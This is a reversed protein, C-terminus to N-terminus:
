HSATSDPAHRCRHLYRTLLRERRRTSDHIRQQLRVQGAQRLVFQESRHAPKLDLRPPDGRRLVPQGGLDGGAIDGPLQFIAVGRRQQGRHQQQGPALRIVPDIGGLQEPRPRRQEALRQRSV